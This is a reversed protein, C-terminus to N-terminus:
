YNYVAQTAPQLLTRGQGNTLPNNYRGDGEARIPADRGLGRAENIDRLHKRQAAMDQKNLHTITESVKNASRQMSRASPPPVNAAMLTNRFATSGIMSNALGVQVGLNLAATRPGRRRQDVVEEYLNHSDTAYHGCTCKLKERWALGRQVEKDLDWVLRGKCPPPPFHAAIATNRLM